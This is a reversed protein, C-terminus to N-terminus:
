YICKEENMEFLWASVGVKEMNEYKCRYYAIGGDKGPINFYGQEGWKKPETVTMLCGGFIEDHEPNIQYIDGAKCKPKDSKIKSV